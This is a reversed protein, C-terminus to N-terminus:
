YLFLCIGGYGWCLEHFLHKHDKFIHTWIIQDTWVRDRNILLELYKKYLHVFPAIINKHLMFASGSIHHWNPEDVRHEEYPESASYIFKNTPLLKLKNKNPFPLPPPKFERLVCVGADVWAFFDSNFPNLTGAKEILFMKENWILNLEVSPCHWNDTIMQDKYRYTFFDTIELEIYYTLLGSRFQRIVELSEKDGFFIYPAQIMLTNKFWETEYKNSHKNKCRWYGSVCTLPFDPM